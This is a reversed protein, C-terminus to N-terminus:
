KTDGIAFKARIKRDFVSGGPVGEMWQQPNSVFQVATEISQSFRDEGKEYWWKGAREYRVIVADGALKAHVKRDSM